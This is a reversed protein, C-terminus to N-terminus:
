IMNVGVHYQLFWVTLSYFLLKMKPFTWWLVILFILFLPMRKADTLLNNLNSSNYWLLFTFAKSVFNRCLNKLNKFGWLCFNQKGMEQGLTIRIVTTNNEMTFFIARSVLLPKEWALPLSPGKKNDLPIKRNASACM